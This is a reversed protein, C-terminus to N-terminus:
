PSVDDSTLCEWVTGNQECVATPAETAPDGGGDWTHAIFKGFEGDDWPRALDTTPVPYNDQLYVTIGHYNRDKYIKGTADVVVVENGEGDSIVDYGADKFDKSDGTPLRDKVIVGGRFTTTEDASKAEGEGGAAQALAPAAMGVSLALTVFTKLLTSM